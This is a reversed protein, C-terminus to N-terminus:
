DLPKPTRKISRPTRWRCRGSIRLIRPKTAKSVIEAWSVSVASSGSSSTSGAEQQADGHLHRLPLYVLASSHGGDWVPEGRIDRHFVGGGGGNECSGGEGVHWLDLGDGLRLANTERICEPYDVERQWM